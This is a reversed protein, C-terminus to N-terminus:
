YCLLKAGIRWLASLLATPLDSFGPTGTTLQPCLGTSIPKVSIGFDPPAMAGGVGGPIVPRRLLSCISCNVFDGMISLHSM